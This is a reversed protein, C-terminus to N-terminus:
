QKANSTIGSRVRDALVNLGGLRGPRIEGWSESGARGDGTGFARSRMKRRRHMGGATLAAATSLPREQRDQPGIDDIDSALVPALWGGAQLQVQRVAIESLQGKLRPSPGRFELGEPTRWFCGSFFAARKPLPARSRIARAILRQLRAGWRGRTPKTSSSTLASDTATSSSGSITSRGTTPTTSPTM